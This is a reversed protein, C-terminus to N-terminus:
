QSKLILSVIGSQHILWPKSKPKVVNLDKEKDKNVQAKKLPPASTKPDEPAATTSEDDILISCKKSSQGTDGTKSAAVVLKRPKPVPNPATHAPTLKATTKAKKSPVTIESDGTKVQVKSKWKMGQKPASDTVSEPTTDSTNKVSADVANCSAKGSSSTANGHPINKSATYLILIYSSSEWLCTWASVKQDRAHCPQRKM